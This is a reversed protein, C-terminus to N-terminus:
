LIEGIEWEQRLVKRYCATRYLANGKLIINEERTEFPGLGVAEQKNWCGCTEEQSFLSYKEM